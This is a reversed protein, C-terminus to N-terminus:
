FAPNDKSVHFGMTRRLRLRRGTNYHAGDTLCAQGCQLVACGFSFTHQSLEALALDRIQAQM